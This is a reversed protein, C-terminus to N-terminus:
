SALNPTEPRVQLRPKSALATDTLRQLRAPTSERVDKEVRMVLAGDTSISGGFV